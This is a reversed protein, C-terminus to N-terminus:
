YDLNIEFFRNRMSLVYNFGVESRLVLLLKRQFYPRDPGLFLTNLQLPRVVPRNRVICVHAEPRRVSVKDSVKRGAKEAATQAVAVTSSAPASEVHLSSSKEKKYEQQKRFLAAKLDVLQMFCFSMIEVLDSWLRKIFERCYPAHVSRNCRDSVAATNVQLRKKEAGVGTREM